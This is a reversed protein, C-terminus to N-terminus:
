CRGNKAVPAQYTVHADGAVEFTKSTEIGDPSCDAVFRQVGEGIADGVDVSVEIPGTGTCALVVMVQEGGSDGATMSVGDQVTM